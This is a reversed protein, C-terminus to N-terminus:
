ADNFSRHNYSTHPAPPENVAANRTVSVLESLHAAIARADYSRDVTVPPEEAATQTAQKLAEDFHSHAEEEDSFETLVTLGGNSSGLLLLRGRVEVLYLGIAGIPLSELVRINSNEKRKFAGLKWGALSRNLLGRSSAVDSNARQLKPSALMAGPYFRRLGKLALWILALMPLLYLVMKWVRQM